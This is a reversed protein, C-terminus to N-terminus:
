ILALIFNKKSFGLFNHTLPGVKSNKKNRFCITKSYIAIYQALIDEIQVLRQETSHKLGGVCNNYEGVNEKRCM